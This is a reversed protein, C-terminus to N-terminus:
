PEEPTFKRDLPQARLRWWPVDSSPPATEPKLEHVVKNISGLDAEIVVLHTAKRMNVATESTLDVVNFTTNGYFKSFESSWGATIRQVVTYQPAEKSNEKLLVLKADAGMLQKRIVDFGAAFDSAISSISM